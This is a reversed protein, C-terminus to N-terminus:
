NYQMLANEDAQSWSASGYTNREFYFDDANIEGEGDAICSAAADMGFREIETAISYVKHSYFVKGCVTNIVIIAEDGSMEGLYSSQIKLGNLTKM